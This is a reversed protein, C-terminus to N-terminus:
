PRDPILSVLYDVTLDVLNGLQEDEFGVGFESEIALIVELCALQDFGLSGLTDSGALESAIRGSYEALLLRIISATNLTCDCPEKM